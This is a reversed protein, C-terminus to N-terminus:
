MLIVEVYASGLCNLNAIVGEKSWHEVNSGGLATHKAGEQEWNVGMVASGSM